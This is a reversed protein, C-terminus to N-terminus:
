QRSACACYKLCRSLSPEKSNVFSHHWYTPNEGACELYLEPSQNKQAVIPVWYKLKCEESTSVFEQSRGKDPEYHLWEGVRVAIVYSHNRTSAYFTKQNKLDYNEEFEVDGFPRGLYTYFDKIEQGNNGTYKVAEFCEGIDDKFLQYKEEM